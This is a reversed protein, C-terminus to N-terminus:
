VKREYYRKGWEDVQALYHVGSQKGGWDKPKFGFRGYSSKSYAHIMEIYTEPEHKVRKDLREMIGMDMKPLADVRLRYMTSASGSGYSFVCLSKGVMKQKETAFLCYLNTYCSATYSSGVRKTIWTSPEAKKVYLEQQERLRIGGSSKPYGNECSRKFARKCLYTSTCHNVFYANDKILKNAAEEDDEGYIRKSMNQYCTDLCQMYCDISHKGDRMLPYSDKWGVPKYFDWTNLMCSAREPELVVPANPGVLIAVASAGNLFSQEANLDAIDVCVVIGYRGDSEWSPSQLWDLSNLFAATGGYCANYNDVGSIDRCDHEEFLSMLHTKISKSRDLLSETGVEIRGIQDYRLGSKKMLRDVVTLAMSVSDEDDGCFGIQNQLLGATYKGPCNHFIEMDSQEVFHNPTYIEMHHIGANQAGRPKSSTPAVGAAPMQAPMELLQPQPAAPLPLSGAAASPKPLYGGEVMWDLMRELQDEGTGNLHPQDSSFRMVQGATEHIPLAAFTEILPKMASTAISRVKGMWADYSIPEMPYGRKVLAVTIDHTKLALPSVGHYCNDKFKGLASDVVLKSVGDVQTMDTDHEINWTMRMQVCTLVYRAFWDKLNAAGTNSDGMIRGPRVVTVALGNRGAAWVLQEALWKSRAYGNILIRPDPRRQGAEGVFHYLSFVSLSSVHLYRMNGQAALSVARKTGAVNTPLLDDLTCSFNVDAGNHILLDCSSAAENWEEQTMGFRENVLTGCRVQIQLEYQPEWLGYEKMNSVIRAMAKTRDDARVLCVVDSGVKMLDRLIFAGLFGTGGTLFVPGQPDAPAKSRDVVPLDSCWEEEYKGYDKWADYDPENSKAQVYQIVPAAPPPMPQMVPAQYQVQAAIQVKGGQSAKAGDRGAKDNFLTGKEGVLRAKQKWNGGFANGSKNCRAIGVCERALRTEDIPPRMLGLTAKVGTPPYSAMRLAFEYGAAKAAEVTNYVENMLGMQQAEKATVTVDNMYLDTANKHGVTMGLNHSLLLGPCVGRPLNGYNFMAGEHAIRYDANLCAALGGGVVKGHVVCVVPCGIDRIGVFARYIEYTIQASTIMPLQKTRRIFNYPNVGVCFHDGAGQFVIARVGDMTKLTAIAKRLDDAMAWDIANCHTPDNLELIAVGTSPDHTISILAGVERERERDRKDLSGMTLLAQEVSPAPCATTCKTLLDDDFSRFRGLLRKLEKEVEEETGVFDVLGAREAQEATYADGTVMWRTCTAKTMRKQAAVSVVGPLGGQRIEPFGFTAGHVALTVTAHCPFLMGGGRTAGHCVAIVPMQAADLATSLNAFQELGESMTDDGFTAAALDMGTCFHQSEGKFVVVQNPVVAAVMARLSSPNLTETLMITREGFDGVSKVNLGSNSFDQPTIPRHQVIPKKQPVNAAAAPEAAKKAKKAKPAAAAAGTAGAAVEDLIRQLFGQPTLGSLFETQSVTVGYQTSAWNALEVAALSDVGMEPLPVDMEVDEVGAGLVFAIKEVVATEIEEASATVVNGGGGASADAAKGLYPAIHDFLMPNKNLKHYSSWEPADMTLHADYRLPSACIRALMPEIKVFSIAGFGRGTNLELEAANRFEKLRGAGVVIPFDIATAAVGDNRFDTALRQMAANAAVYLAQGKNGHLGALSCFMVFCSVNCGHALLATKLHMAGAVKIDWAPSGELMEVNTSDEATYQNAAHFVASIKPTTQAVTEDVLKADTVDVKKVNINIGPHSRRIAELTLESEAPVRGTGSLLLLNMAGKDAAWRAVELGLGRSGGTVLVTGDAPFLTQALLPFEPTAGSKATEALPNFGKPIEVVIKGQHKGSAMLKFADVVKEAPYTQTPIPVLDGCALKAACDDILKRVKHPHTKDLLDLHVSHFAVNEKLAGLNIRKDNLIDRKGIEIFRGCPAMCQLTEAQGDGALSNLVVDVGRGETHAMVKSVFEAPNHSDMVMECGLEMLKARKEPNGASGIIRAGKLKAIQLASQGVGGLTSHLLVIDGKELQAVNVLAHWATAMVGLFGAAEVVSVNDPCKVTQREKAVAKTGFLASREEGTSTSMALCMVKDGVKFNTTDKGVKQVIGACEMGIIPKFDGLMGMALMVDKFHLSVASVDVMVEDARVGEYDSELPHWKLSSLQGPRGIQLRVDKKEDSVEADAAGTVPLLRPVMWGETSSLSLERDVPRGSASALLSMLTNATAESPWESSPVGVAYITLGTENRACRSFGWLASPAEGKAGEPILFVIPTKKDVSGAVVTKLFASAKVVDARCDVILTADELSGQLGNFATKEADSGLVHVKLIVEPEEFEEEAAVESGETPTAVVETFLRYQETGCMFTGEASTGLCQVATQQADAGFLAADDACVVVDWSGGRGEEVAEALADETYQQVAASAMAGTLGGESTKAEGAAASLDAADDLTCLLLAGTRLPCSPADVGFTTALKLLTAAGGKLGLVRVVRDGRKLQAGIAEILEAVPKADNTKAGAVSLSRLPQMVSRYLTPARSMSSPARRLLLGRVAAIRQGSSGDYIDVDGTVVDREVTRLTAHAVLKRGPAAAAILSLQGLEFPVFSDADLGHLFAMTQFCADLATPHLAFQNDPPPAITSLAEAGTVTLKEIAQFSAGFNLGSHTELAKYALPLNVDGGGQNKLSARIRELLPTQQQGDTPAEAKEEVFIAAPVEPPFRPLNCSFHQAQEKGAGSMLALRPGDTVAQMSTEENGGTFLPLFREFRAKTITAIGKNGDTSAAASLGMGLAVSVYAAGPLIVEGDVVHDHLYEHQSSSWVMGGGGTGAGATSGNGGGHYPNKWTASRIGGKHKWQYSPLKYPAAVVSKNDADLPLSPALLASWNVKVGAAFLEALGCLLSMVAPKKKNLTPVYKLGPCNESIYPMLVAHPSIELAIKIEEKDEDEVENLALASACAKEFDVAGRMNKYWYASNLETDDATDITTGLTASVFPVTPKSATCGEAAGMFTSEVPDVHSSHYARPVSLMTCRTKPVTGKGHTVVTQVAEADGALTVGTATNICAVTVRDELGLSKITEQAEAASTAWAAMAGETMAQQASARSFTVKVLGAYDLAGCAFAAVMEGTSHGLVARPEVGTAKLLQVLACQVFVICPVSVLVGGLKDENMDTKCFGFEDVLNIGSATAYLSVLEDIAQKFVAFQSYLERGMSPYQSGQGGFCFLVGPAGGVHEGDIQQVGKKLSSTGSPALVVKRFRQAPRTSSFLAADLALQKASVEEAESREIWESHMADVGEKFHSSLVLVVPQEQEQTATAVKQAEPAATTPEYQELIVYGNSGGFGYSNISTLPARGSAPQDLPEVETPIRLHLEKADINPSFGNFGATPPVKNYKLILAAKILGVAGAATELHGTHGKASGMALPKERKGVTSSSISNAELPDGVKTGTGHAEAYTIDEKETGSKAITDMMLNRQSEESPMTLSKTRGDENIGHGRVHAYIRTNSESGGTKRLILVGCGEGRVFGNAETDFPRSTGTPSLMQAQTFGIFPSPGLLANVGAVIALDCTGAELAQCGLHFATM